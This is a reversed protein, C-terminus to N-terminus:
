AASMTLPQIKISFLRLLVQSIKEKTKLPNPASYDHLVLLELRVLLVLSCPHVELVEMLLKSAELLQDVIIISGLLPLEM